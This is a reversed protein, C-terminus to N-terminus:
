GCIGKDRFFADMEAHLTDLTDCSRDLSAQMRPIAESVQEVLAALEVEEAESIQDFNDVALRIYEGSSVGLSAARQEIAAKRDPTTLFTVRATQM